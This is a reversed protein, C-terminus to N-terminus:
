FYFGVKFDFVAGVKFDTGPNIEYPDRCFLICNDNNLLEGNAPIAGEQLETNIVVGGLSFNVGVYAVRLIDSELGFSGFLGGRFRSGELNTTQFFNNNVLYSRREDFNIFETMILGGYYFFGSGIRKNYFARFRLGRYNDFHYYNNNLSSRPILYGFEGGVYANNKIKRAYGFQYGHGKRNLLSSINWYFWNKKETIYLRDDEIEEEKSVEQAQLSSLLVGFCLFFLLAFIRM